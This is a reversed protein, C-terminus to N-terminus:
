FNNKLNRPAVQIEIKPNTPLKIKILRVELLNIPQSMSIRDFSGNTSSAYFEFINEPSEMDGLEINAVEKVLIKNEDSYVNQEDPKIVFKKFDLGDLVYHIKEIDNEKDYNSYFIITNTGAFVLPYDGTQSTTANRLEFVFDKVFARGISQKNLNQNIVSNISFINSQFLGITGTILTLIAVTIIIEILSFGKELKKKIFLKKKM